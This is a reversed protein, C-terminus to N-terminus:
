NKQDHAKTYYYTLALLFWCNSWRLYPIRNPFIKKQYYFYGNGSYLNKLSFNYVKSARIFENFRCLTIISQSVETADIPYYSDSYYKPYGESTFLNNLYYALGAQLNKKYIEYGSIEIFTDLADLIYATHFNDIWKRADDKSYFWSGDKRQNNLVYKVTNRAVEILESDKTISYAQALLRAGKMTANFVKQRDNPSYSFCFANEEYSRNLDNLVFKSSSILIDKIEHNNSIKYYEYLGNTIIGTAVVTPMYKPISTYRAEWDFNYGWCYGSYGKSSLSLLKELAININDKYYDKSDPKIISLYAYSQICLGLSVPNIDKKIGLLPRLNFPIRRFVQQSGFRILKNTKLFSFKFIPSNLVDFPDYGKYKEKLVYKELQDIIILVNKDM